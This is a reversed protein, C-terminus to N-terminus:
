PRADEREVAELITLDVVSDEGAYIQLAESVANLMNEIQTFSLHRTVTFRMGSKGRPVIPFIAPNLYHGDNLVYALMSGMTFTKGIEIMWLPTQSLSTVPIKLDRALTNVLDIRESLEFQLQTLEASLHIDGSAVGAGLSAPPIPGGFVLPGGTTRIVELLRSDKGAVVGGLAAFSKSLGFSMLLREHWGIRALVQGQGRPGQASFGHADDCYVWLNSHQELLSFLDEAPVTDGHMSYIGDCIYWVRENRKSCYDNIRNMDNHPIQTIVAGNAELAPICALLSAHALADILVHDGKRVMVPLAAFHALTTSAAIVVEADIMAELRERLENYLPVALYSKSSSFSSGYRRIAETGAEVLRPDNSLGLYSSLGFNVVDRGNLRVTDGVYVDDEIVQHAFGLDRATRSM